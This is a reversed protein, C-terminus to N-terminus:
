SFLMCDTEVTHWPEKPIIMSLKATQRFVTRSDQYSKQKRIIARIEQAKFGIYAKQLHQIVKTIGRPKFEDYFVEKVIKERREPDGIVEIDNWFLKQGQVKFGDAHPRLEKTYEQKRVDEVLKPTWKVRLIRQRATRM